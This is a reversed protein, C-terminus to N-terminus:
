TVEEIKKILSSRHWMWEGAPSDVWNIEFTGNVAPMRIVHVIFVKQYDHGMVNLGDQQERVWTMEDMDWLHTSGQTTIRYKGKAKAAIQKIEAM